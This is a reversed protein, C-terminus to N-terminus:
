ATLLVERDAQCKADNLNKFTSAFYETKRRPAEKTREDKSRRREEKKKRKFCFCLFKLHALEHSVFITKDMDQHTILLM